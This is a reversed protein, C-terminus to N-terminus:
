AREGSRVKRVSRFASVAEAVTDEFILHSPQMPDSQEVYDDTLHIMWGTDDREIEAIKDPHKAALDRLVKSMSAETQNRPVMAVGVM